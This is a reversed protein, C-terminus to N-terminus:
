HRPRNWKRGHWGVEEPLEGVFGSYNLPGKKAEVKEEKPSSVQSPAAEPPAQRRAREENRRKRRLDRAARRKEKAALAARGVEDDIFNDNPLAVSSKERGRSHRAADYDDSPKTSAESPVSLPPDDERVVARPHEETSSERTKERKDKSSPSILNLESTTKELLVEGGGDDIKDIENVRKAMSANERPVAQQVVGPANISGKASEMVDSVGSRDLRQKEARQMEVREENALQEQEEARRVEARRKKEREKQARRKKKLLARDPSWLVTCVLTLASLEVARFKGKHRRLRKTVAGVAGDRLVTRRHDPLLTFLWLVSLVSALHAIHVDRLACCLMMVFENSKTDRFCREKVFIRRNPAWFRVFAHASIAFERMKDPMLGMELLVMGEVPAHSRLMDFVQREEDLEIAALDPLKMELSDWDRESPLAGRWLAHLDSGVPTKELRDLSLHLNMEDDDETADEEGDAGDEGSAVTEGGDEENIEQSSPQLMESSLSGKEKIDVIQQTPAEKNFTLTDTEGAFAVTRGKRKLESKAAKERQESENRRQRALVDAPMLTLEDALTQWDIRENEERTVGDGTADGPRSFPRSSTVGRLLKATDAPDGAVPAEGEVRNRRQRAEAKAKAIDLTENDGSASTSVKANEEDREEWASRPSPPGDREEQPVTSSGAGKALRASAKEAALLAEEETLGAQRLLTLMKRRKQSEVKRKREFVLPRRGWMSSLIETTRKSFIRRLNGTHQAAEDTVADRTVSQAADDNAGRSDGDITTATTLAAPKSKMRTDSPESSEALEKQRRLLAARRGTLMELVEKAEFLQPQLNELQHVLGETHKDTAMSGGLGVSGKTAASDGHGSSKVDAEAAGLPADEKAGVGPDGGDHDEARQTLPSSGHREKEAAALAATDADISIAANKRKSSRPRRMRNAKDIASLQRKLDKQHRQIEEVAGRAISVEASVKDLDMLLQEGSEEETEREARELLESKLQTAQDPAMEYIRHRRQLGGNLNRRRAARDRRKAVRQRLNAERRRAERAEALLADESRSPSPTAAAAGRDEEEEEGEEEEEEEEEESSAGAEGGVELGGDDEEEKDFESLADDLMADLDPSMPEKPHQADTEPRAEAKGNLEEAVEGDFEDLVDDLLTARRRSNEQAGGDDEDEDEDADFEELASDLLSEHTRPPVAAAVQPVRPKSRRKWEKNPALSSRAM